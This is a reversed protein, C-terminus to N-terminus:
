LATEGSAMGPSIAHSAFHSLICNSAINYLITAKREPPLCASNGNKKQKALETWEDTEPLPLQQVQRFTHVEKTRLHM